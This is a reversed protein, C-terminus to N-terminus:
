LLDLIRKAATYTTVDQRAVAKELEPLLAKVDPNAHLKAELGERILQHMWQLRQSQRDSALFGNSLSQDWYDFVM